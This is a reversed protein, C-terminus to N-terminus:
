QSKGKSTAKKTILDEGVTLKYRSDTLAVDLRWGGRGQPKMMGDGAYNARRGDEAISEQSQGPYTIMYSGTMILRVDRAHLKYGDMPCELAQEHDNFRNHKHGIWKVDAKVFGLRAFDIMGKTVPASGGGGHHYFIVLRCGRPTNGRLTEIRYDLFGNYGGYAIKHKTHRQLEEIVMAVPDVSHYKEVATEHNGLGIFDILDAAPRLIKVAMKVAANLVDRRGLLDPHLVDPMFRKHDKPLILDLLDGNIGIRSGRARADEIEENILDYDVNSAGIHLDSMLRISVTDGNKGKLPRPEIRSGM